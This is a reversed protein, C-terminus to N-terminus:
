RPIDSLSILKDSLSVTFDIYKEEISLRATAAIKKLDENSHTELITKLQEKWNLDFDFLFGTIGHEIQEASGKSYRDVLPIRGLAQIEQPILGRTEYPAPLIGFPIDNIIEDWNSVFDPTTTKRDFIRDGVTFIDNDDLRWFGDQLDMKGVFFTDIKKYDDLLPKKLFKSIKDSYIDVVSFDLDLREPFHKNVDDMVTRSAVFLHDCDRIMRQENSLFKGVEKRINYDYHDDFRTSQAICETIFCHLFAVTKDAKDKATKLYDWLWWELFNFLIGIEEKEFISEIFQQCGTDSELHIKSIKSGEPLVHIEIYQNSLERYRPITTFGIAKFGSLRCIESITRISFIGHCETYETVITVLINKKL